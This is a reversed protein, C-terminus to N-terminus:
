NNATAGQDMGYDVGEGKEQIKKLIVEDKEDKIFRYNNGLDKDFQCISIYDCYKCPTIGKPKRYPNIAFKGQLIDSTLSKCKEEVFHLLDNFQDKCLVKSYSSFDGDKKIGVPIIDSGSALEKDMKYVIINDKLVYGKLKLQKFIEREPDEPNEKIIPDDVHYYFVGGIRPKRGFLEEGKQVLANLYVLLQLQIGEFAESLNINRSSSKYDIICIYIDNNEDRYTDVRDIKGRLKVVKGGVDLQLSDIYTKGVEEETNFEGIKLETYEPRFESQQLQKVITQTTRSLLRYIKNKLYRNRNNADLATIKKSQEELVTEISEKALQDVDEKTFNNIEDRQEILKNIFDELVDHYINGIDYAEVEQLARPRITLINEVFYKFQCQGYSELKSVTMSIDGEYLEDILQPEIAQVQNQYNFGRKIQNLSQIDNVLYWRYVDNWIDNIPNGSIYERLNEILRESTSNPNSIFEFKDVSFIDSEEMVRPFIQKITGIYLSPQLSSGDITGLAYSIYLKEKPSSFAKYLMHKNKFYVYNSGSLIKLEKNILEAREEDLLLGKEKNFDINGENAGIIFLAKSTSVAIRDIDGIEVNDITPPIISIQVERFAAELLRRYGLPSINKEQGVLLIQKFIDMIYNWAQTYESSQEYKNEVVFQRISSKLKEHIHHKDLFEFIFATIEGVTNLSKFENSKGQFDAVFSKRIDEIVSDGKIKEFYKSGEIGYQLVYNELYMIQNDTLPSLGTKLYEFVNDYKFSWIFIDLIALIYKSLPNNMIDRKVDLFYPIEYRNFIKKISNNYNDMNGVAIKIDKWRYNHDRVLSLVKNATKEVETYPNMSSYIHINDTPSEYGEVRLSFLNQEVFNIEKQEKKNEIAVIEMYGGMTEEISKYTDYIIKFAEWDDKSELDNLYSEEITLLINLDKSYENLNKIFKLRQQDFSEFGDIWISSNKIYDSEEILSIIMDLKDEEDFYKDKTSEIYKSYILLIDSLKGNLLFDDIDMYTSQISDVSVQNQKFEQILNSFERLFGEQSSAKKFMKLQPVNEDFIQKLLMVKGFIDIEDNVKGGVEDLIKTALRKFSLVEVNMIGDLKLYQIIDYEAQYTMLDPVIIILNDESNEELQRKIEEYIHTSKGTKARGTIIRM